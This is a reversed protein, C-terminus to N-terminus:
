PDRLRAGDSRHAPDRVFVDTGRRADLDECTPGPLRQDGPVLDGAESSFAVVSGDASLSPSRSVDDAGRGDADLSVILTGACAASPGAVALLLGAILTPVVLRRM